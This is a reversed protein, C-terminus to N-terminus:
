GMQKVGLNVTNSLLSAVGYTGRVFAQPWIVSCSFVRMAPQTFPSLAAHSASTKCYEFSAYEM